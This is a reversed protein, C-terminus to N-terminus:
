RGGGTQGRVAVFVRFHRDFTEDRRFLLPGARISDGAPPNMVEPKRIWVANLAPTPGNYFIIAMKKSADPFSDAGPSANTFSVFRLTKIPLDYVWLPLVIPYLSAVVTIDRGTIQRHLNEVDVFHNSTEMIRNGLRFVGITGKTMCFEAFYDASVYLLNLSLILGMAAMGIGRQVKSGKELLPAVLRVLFYPLFLSPLEFYQIALGPTIVMIALVFLFAGFLMASDRRSPRTKLWFLNVFLLAIMSVTVYPLVPVLNKGTVRLFVLGGDWIGSFVAPVHTIDPLFNFLRFHGEGSIRGGRSHHLFSSVYSILRPFFGMFFGAAVCLVGGLNKFLERRYFVVVTAFLALPLTIGIIHNYAALGLCAGGAAALAMRRRSRGSHVAKALLYLGAFTLLPNLCTLEICFRAQTVFVPFTCLLLGVLLHLNKGSHLVRVCLMAFLIALTNFFACAIRLVELRYGFIEFVPYLLYQHLAGTYGNMGNIHHAGAALEKVRAFIWAEDVHLGAVNGPFITLM